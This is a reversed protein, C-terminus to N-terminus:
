LSLTLLISTSRSMSQSSERAPFVKRKKHKSFLNVPLATLKTMFRVQVINSHHTIM